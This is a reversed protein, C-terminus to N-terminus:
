LGCSRTDIAAVDIVHEATNCFPPLPYGLDSFYSVCEQRSDAYVCRGKALLIVRDFLTWIESRPQHITVVVTRGKRALSKLTNVLQYASTADLCTTPENLWLVSPNALLQIALSTRRREGRSCYKVRTEAAEKLSLELIVEEVIKYREAKEVDDRLRLDTSYQLTERVTLTPILVDQQMVYAAEVGSRHAAGNFILQGDIDFRSDHIRDALVNLLSTKGSGSSGLIAAGM